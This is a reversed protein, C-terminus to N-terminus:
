GDEEQQYILLIEDAWSGEEHSTPKYTKTSTIVVNIVDVSTNNIFNRVREAPPVPNGLGKEDKFLRARIM